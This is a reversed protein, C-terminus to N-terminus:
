PCRDRWPWVTDSRTPHAAGFGYRNNAESCDAYREVTDWGGRTFKYFFWEGRPVVIEGRARGTAADWALPAHAWGNASTAIYVPRDRATGAPVTVEVTVRVVPRPEVLAPDYAVALPLGTLTLGRAVLSRDDADYWWGAVSGARWAEDSLRPLESAGVTVRTPASEVRRVRVTLARPLRAGDGTVRATLTMGVATRSTAFTVRGRPADSAGDPLDDVLTFETARAAPYVDLDLPAGTAAWPGAYQQLPGRPVIAGERV